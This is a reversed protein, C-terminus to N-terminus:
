LKMAFPGVKVPPKAFANSSVVSITVQKNKNQTSEAPKVRSKEIHEQILYGIWMLGSMAFVTMVFVRHTKVGIPDFALVTYYILVLVSRAIELYPAFWRRDFFAGFVQMTWVFFAVKLGTELYSLKHRDYEFHMFIGLLLLFHGACYLKVWFTLIPNYKVVPKEIEPVGKTTDELTFWHFFQYVKEGPFWGPPYIAARIKNAWGPFIPEGKEDKMQGKDWLLEKLTHFQLWLQNFNNENHILGYIPPDDPREAEFTHFMRDWIIFVGGYNRDICYANRGHHVRHHSPTNLVYGLPGLSGLLSTHMWFQYIENFYRHVLFIPPPIFLAQIVDYLALGVDQIAAQRLATSLNYYESSHHITHFGWFFGAEHVARHGLYYMFDQFFLCLIWTWPSDWPLEVLRLNDWIYVYAFIAIARGGFKFCQSLMGASISTISDNLAFRDDHGSLKLVVFELFVLTMWWTSTQIGYNPVEELTRFTSEQPSILYFVYRLNTLTLRELMRHGLSTNSFIRDLFNSEATTNAWTPGFDTMNSWDM